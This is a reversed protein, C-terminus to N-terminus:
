MEFDDVGAERLKNRNVCQKCSMKCGQKMFTPNKICEGEREWRECSPHTDECDDNNESPFTWEKGICLECSQSCSKTMYNLNRDCEGIQAWFLCRPHKDVCDNSDCTGDAKCTVTPDPGNDVGQDMSWSTVVLLLVIVARVSLLAM